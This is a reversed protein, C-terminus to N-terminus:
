WRSYSPSPRMACIWFIWPDTGLHFSLDAYLGRFPLSDGALVALDLDEPGPEGPPRKAASGFLYAFRLGYRAM